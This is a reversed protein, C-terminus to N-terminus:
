EAWLSNATTQYDKLITELDKSTDSLALEMMAMSERYVADTNASVPLTYLDKTAAAILPSIKSGSETYKPDNMASTRVPIYGTDVAWTIQSEKSVLHKMYEFAATKQEATAAEFMYIDTGQQINTKQPRVVVGYEFKETGDENMAGKQVHSEGASSGINMAIQQNGFPGSLYKDSGAIRFYGEKVGDRYYDVVKQSEKGTVDMDETFKVGENMMGTAYYNNLSDFGAGVIGEKEFIEKSVSALEEFTTPAKIDLKDLLTKNYYLVETSKNFPIGFTKGDIKAGERFGEAIDDYDEFGITKHGIYPTLDTVQGDEMANALWGPYAQTITPLDKPSVLTATVKQQLENYSSQNLLKVEIMENAANFEDTLQTLTEEQKGNMAHWFNVETKETLETVINSDDVADKSGCGVLMLIALLAISIRKLNKM